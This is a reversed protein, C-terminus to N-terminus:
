VRNSETDSVHCIPWFSQFFCVSAESFAAPKHAKLEALHDDRAELLHIVEVREIHDWPHALGNRVVLVAILVQDLRDLHERLLWLEGHHNFISAELAHAVRIHCTTDDGNMGSVFESYLASLLM